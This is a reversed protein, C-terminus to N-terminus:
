RHCKMMALQVVYMTAPIRDVQLVHMRTSSVLGLLQFALLHWREPMVVDGGGGEERGQLDDIGGVWCAVGMSQCASPM